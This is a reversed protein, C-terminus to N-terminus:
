LAPRIFSNRAPVRDRQIIWEAVALNLVWAAAMALASARETPLGTALYTVGTTFVTTGAGLGIAYARMMWARHRAVDRSRISQLGLILCLAMAAGFTMRFGYLLESNAPQAPYTNTMWLGSLAGILGAVVLVRGARRHWVPYRQRLGPSFQFAGIATYIMMATVHLIIPMPAAFFRANDATVQPALMMDAMRVVGAALPVFGLALLGVPVLTNAAPRKFM